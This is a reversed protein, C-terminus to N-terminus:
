GGADHENHDVSMSSASDDSGRNPGPLHVRAMVCRRTVVDRPMRVGVSVSRAGGNHVWLQSVPNVGRACRHAAWDLMNGIALRLVIAVYVTPVCVHECQNPSPSRTHARWAMHWSSDAWSRDSM